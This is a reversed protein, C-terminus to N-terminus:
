TSAKPPGGMGGTKKSSSFVPPGDKKIPADKKSEEAATARQAGMESRSLFGGDDQKPARTFPAPDKAQADSRNVNVGKQFGLDSKEAVKATNRKLMM